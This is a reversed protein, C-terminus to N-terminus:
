NATAGSDRAVKTWKVTETRIFDTLQDVTMDGASVGQEEFQKQMDPLVLLKALEARVRQEIAIPTGHPAMIAYWTTVEYGKVGAEDMTPVGPYASSRKSTTVALAKVRGSRVHPAASPSTEIAMQIQGGILDTMMPAGGKYPIHTIDTGTLSRFLEGSLHETSGNGASGYNVKAPNAKIYAILEPVSKVPISPNVLLVNPTLAVLGIPDLDKVFDYPLTKYIGPAMTHAITAMLFTYGDAPAKAVFSAGLTGGAGPRNEVVVPQQLAQALKQGVARSIVDTTGGPAFPVILTIPKAPWSDLAMAAHQVFGAAVLAFLAVFTAFAAPRCVSILARRRSISQM